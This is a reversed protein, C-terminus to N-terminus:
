NKIIHLASNEVLKHQGSVVIIENSNLGEMIEIGNNLLEGTKVYKKVATNQSQNVAYVYNNGKEDVLVSRSPVVFRTGAKFNDISVNCIMGPKIQRNKNTIGIKIKYTHAIPDALVGIEEIVGTFATNGLAAIVIKATQGKKMSAIENESVSVRAFVKEIKVINIATFGPMGSMGPEISRRGVIGDSPAYLKCDTVNKKSMAASSRAQQLSTEVEILKIEPLNGNKYMPLLRNYADEAQKLSALSMKYMNQFTEDNLTALLQGSKVYDGEKVLVKSISGATTFSLPISESEEITGSYAIIQNGDVTKVQETEVAVTKNNEDKGSSKSCGTSLFIGGSILLYIFMRKTKM